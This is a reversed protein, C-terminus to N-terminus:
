TIVVGVEARNTHAVDNSRTDFRGDVAIIADVARVILAVEASACAIRRPM